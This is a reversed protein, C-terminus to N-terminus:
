YTFEECQRLNIVEQVIQHDSFHYHVGQIMQDTEHGKGAILVTDESQAAQIAHHIAQARDMEIHIQKPQKMGRLIAQTIAESSENRPNDQTIIVHDAYQQAIAGMLPRKAADRNGGCGFICWLKGKSSQLAKLANKLADPTHAYDIVVRPQSDKHVKEMRGRLPKLQSIYYLSKKFPINLISLAILTLLLNSLNFRGMLYANSLWGQGWPTIVYARIQDHDIEIHKIYTTGQKLQTPLLAKQTYSYVFPLCESFLTQWKRGYADDQNFIAYQITPQMFLKKKAEAYNELSTHYDLHDHTLNTFAAITFPVHQLRGQAIGHSSAELAVVCVGQDRFQALLCQLDIASPTTLTNSKLVDFHAGKDSPRYIGCGVGGIVGCKQGSQAIAAAIFHTCSSKGNTGTVGILRMKQGPNQYFRMAIESILQKVNKKKFIRKFAIFPLSESCSEEMLIAVAGKQIAEQIYDRGDKQEGQYACFLDGPKVTRSDETIGKIECNEAETITVINHLLIKLQM